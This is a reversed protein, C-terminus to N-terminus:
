GQRGRALVSFESQLGLREGIRQGGKSQTSWYSSITVEEYQERLVDGIAEEDVGDRVVHYETMDALFREDVGGKARRRLTGVGKLLDGQGLRWAYYGARSAMRHSRPVRGYLLPDQWSIFAGGPRTLEMWQRISGLYDPIHHLVSVCVVLDFMDETQTAWLAHPDHVVRVDEREAFATRLREASAASMETVTVRTGATLLTSTFQGHGAGIELVEIPRGPSQRALQQAVSGLQGVIRRRLSAHRLHPSGSEYDHDEGFALAQATHVAEM